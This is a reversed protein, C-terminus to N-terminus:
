KQVLLAFDAVQLFLSRLQILLLLRNERLAKDEVMVMVQDFFQDIPERLKALQLMLQIYGARSKQSKYQAQEQLAQFLDKEATEQFLQPDIAQATIEDTYQALIKSVRKNAMVLSEAQALEKFAQIGAVRLHIDYPNTVEIATVAAFADAEKEQYMGKLRDLIFRLTQSVTEKNELNGYSQAAYALVPRLDLDIQKELVIRLIGLAARRLGYPDKDGTPNQHIGFIGVLTDIRDALALLCGLPKEPLADGAFRPKYHDVLAQAVLPSENDHLAYYYGMIGQLEPFEGVMGTTLDAKALLAARTALTEKEKLYAVLHNALQILRQTKDYLTGLKAQFVIGKLAEVRQELPQKKDIEYFFAADSLRARLVRENGAVVRPLNRSEINIVTVFHPLLKGQGDEIPFYRQHDQLSSILVERPLNLFYSDFSGCIAVPWEVLGCVENLLVEQFIIKAKTGLKNKVVRETKERILAKRKDFDAIVYGKKELLGAYARPLTIKIKHPHHFRHGATLRDTPKGLVQTEVIDKGFLLLASHLPRIFSEANEGWRMRKPIPLAALAQQVMAPLLAVTPKGPQQEVYALWEGEKNKITTLAQPDVGCSRAFGLCALTPQGAKDFATSLAPGKREMTQGAQQVAVAKIFLALRRPTVYFQGEGFTLLAKQLHKEMEQKLAVGLTTLIHPPLEETQIELLFDKGHSM